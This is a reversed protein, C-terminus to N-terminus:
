GAWAPYLAQEGSQQLQPPVHGTKGNEPAWPWSHQRGCTFLPSPAPYSIERVWAGVCCVLQLDLEGVGM